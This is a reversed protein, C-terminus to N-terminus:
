VPKCSRCFISVQNRLFSLAYVILDIYLFENELQIDRIHYITFPSFPCTSNIRLLWDAAKSAYRSIKLKLIKRNSGLFSYLTIVNFMKQNFILNDLMVSVQLDSACINEWLMTVSLHSCLSQLFSFFRQSFM